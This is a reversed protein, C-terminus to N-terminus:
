VGFSALARADGDTFPDRLLGAVFREHNWVELFHQQGLVDVEGVMQASERLRPQILIRGQPDIETQQGYFSVRARYRKVSPDEQPMQALKEETEQWVALPYIRVSDGAISTIYLDRGYTEQIFM